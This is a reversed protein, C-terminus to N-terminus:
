LPYPAGSLVSIGHPVIHLVRRHLHMDTAGAGIRQWSRQGADAAIMAKDAAILADDM